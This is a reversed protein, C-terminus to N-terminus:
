VRRFAGAGGERTVLEPHILHALLEVGDVLRPGPRAFYANADVAYVRGERVAPLDGWGPQRVLLRAQEAARDLAFGCPAVVVVEPAWAVVDDWSVRVSDAGPRGLGDVGGALEVMEPVWHGGCYPPDVWEAIWVRPRRPAARAREAVRALRARGEAIVREAREACGAADGLARLNGEVEALTRPTLWLVQPARPLDRLVRTIENGSPACVQCLDQTLILDPQLDRLLAEDVEYLTGSARLQGAVAADIEGPSLAELALAPRAVAPTDRVEAPYDCEHSRGVLRDGLGLAYVMETAAPLFSVIREPIAHRIASSM